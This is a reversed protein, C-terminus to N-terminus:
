IGVEKIRAVLNDVTFPRGDYRLIREHIMIGNQEARAALQATANEEVAILCKVGVLSKKIQDAPFPALVVPRIVRLGLMEAVEDCVGKTSGWCFLAASAGPTGSQIVPTYDKMVAILTEGKKLRKKTMLTTIDADESTIGAEDHLYGNVKVVADKTGPFAMPSLGDKGDEYRRYPTKGDWGTV